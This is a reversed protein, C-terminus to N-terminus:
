PLTETTGSTIIYCNSDYAIYDTIGCVCPCYCVINGSSATITATGDVVTITADNLVMSNSLNNFANFGTSEFSTPKTSM